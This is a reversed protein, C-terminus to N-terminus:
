DVGDFGYQEMRQACEAYAGVIEDIMDKTMPVPVTGVAVSPIDSASWPPSGDLAGVNHGAHWLQQFLRTGHPKIREVLKRMGGEIDRNYINMTLPTSPHVSGIENIILGVGSRARLEHYAILADNMT